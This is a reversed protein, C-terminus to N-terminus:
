NKEYKWEITDTDKTIYQDAGVPALNSNIYFSWFHSSDSTKNNITTVYSQGNTDKTEVQYSRELLKLASIGEKGKYSIIENANNTSEHQVNTTSQSLEQSPNKSFIFWAGVALMAVVLLTVLQKTFNRMIGWWVKFVSAVDFYFV